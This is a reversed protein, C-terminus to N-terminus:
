EQEGILHPEGGVLELIDAVAEPRKDYGVVEGVRQM